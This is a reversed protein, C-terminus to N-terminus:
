VANGVLNIIIQRLKASDTRVFLPFSSSQHLTLQLGKSEARVRLMIIHKRIRWQINAVRRMVIFVVGSLTSRLLLMVREPPRLPDSRAQDEVRGAPLPPM